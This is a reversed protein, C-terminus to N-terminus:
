GSYRKKELSTNVDCVCLVDSLASLQTSESVLYEWFYSKLDRRLVPTTSSLGPEIRKLLNCLEISPLCFLRRDFDWSSVGTGGGLVVGSDALKGEVDFGGATEACRLLHKAQESTYATLRERLVTAGILPICLAVVQPADLTGVSGKVLRKYFKQVAESTNGLKRLTADTSQMYPRAKDFFNDCLRFLEPESPEEKRAPEQEEPPEVQREAQDQRKTERWM